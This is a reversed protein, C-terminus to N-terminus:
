YPTRNAKRETGEALLLDAEDAAPALKRWPESAINTM